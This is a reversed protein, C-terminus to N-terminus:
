RIPRQDGVSYFLEQGAVAAVAGDPGRQIDVEVLELVDVVGEAMLGAVPEQLRDRGPQRGRQAVGVGDPPHAAVLEDYQDVVGRQGIGRFQHSVADQLNHTFGELDVPHGRRYHDSGTNPNRDSVVFCGAFQQAVSVQGQILGFGGALVAQFHESRLHIGADLVAVFQFEIQTGRQFAVLESEGILRDVVEIVEGQDPDFGEDPPLVGGEPDHWGVLENRQELPWITSTPRQTSRWAQV